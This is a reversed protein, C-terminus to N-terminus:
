LLTKKTKQLLFLLQLKTGDVGGGYSLYPLLHPHKTPTLILVHLVLFSKLKIRREKCPYQLSPSVKDWCSDQGTVCNVVPDYFPEVIESYQNYQEKKEMPQKVGFDKCHKQGEKSLVDLHMPNRLPVVSEPPYWHCWLKFWLHIKANVNQSWQSSVETQCTLYKPRSGVSPRILSELFTSWDGAAVTTLVSLSFCLMETPALLPLALLVSKHCSCRLSKTPKTTMTSAHDESGTVFPATCLSNETSKRSNSMRCFFAGSHDKLEKFSTKRVNSM